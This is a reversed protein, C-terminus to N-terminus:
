RKSKESCVKCEARHVFLLYIASLGVLIYVLEELAPISGFVFTVLNFGLAVLLWNLAGIIVLLFAVMHLAKM